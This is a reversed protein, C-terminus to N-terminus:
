EPEIPVPWPLCRKMRISCCSWWEIFCATARGWSGGRVIFYYEVPMALASVLRRVEWSDTLSQLGYCANSVECKQAVAEQTCRHEKILKEALILGLADQGDTHMQEIM